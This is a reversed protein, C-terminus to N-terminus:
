DNSAAAVVLSRVGTRLLEAFEHDRNPDGADLWICVGEHLYNVVSSSVWQRMTPDDVYNSVIGDAYQDAVLRFLEAEASFLPEHRAHRWLLRYADPHDRAVAVLTPAIPPPQVDAFEERLRETVTCLVAQYLAEKTDFHRYLILRTVGAEQAVATMSTGDYGGRLFAGAAAGLLQARRELRPLRNSQTTTSDSRQTPDGNAM